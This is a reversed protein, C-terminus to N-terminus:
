SDSTAGRASLEIQRNGPGSPHLGRSKDTQRLPGMDWRAAAVSKVSAPRERPSMPWRSSLAGSVAAGRLESGKVPVGRRTAWGWLGALSGEADDRGDGGVGGATRAV